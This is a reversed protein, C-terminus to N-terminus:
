DEARRNLSLLHKITTLLEQNDFPKLLVDDAGLERLKKVDDRGIMGSIILIKVDKNKQDKRIQSCVQYGDLGPMKVDLLILQPQFDNLRLGASFGDYAIEFDFNERQLIRKISNVMEKDDDVILVRKKGAKEQFEAPIPINYEKLFEVFDEPTVRSHNGPTRYAKIKGDNIWQAVTRSTVDCYQAIDSATLTRKM